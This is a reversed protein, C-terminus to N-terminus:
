ADDGGDGAGMIARVRRVGPAGLTWGHEAHGLIFDQAGSKLRIADVSQQIALPRGPRHAVAVAQLKCTTVWAPELLLTVVIQAQASTLNLAAQVARLATASM